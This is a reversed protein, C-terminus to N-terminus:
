LVRSSNSTPRSFLNTTATGTWTSLTNALILTSSLTAREEESIENLYYKGNEKHYCSDVFTKDEEDIFLYMHQYTKESVEEFVTDEIGSYQIGDTIINSMYDPLALDTQAQVYLLGIVLVIPLLFPKLYKLLKIM